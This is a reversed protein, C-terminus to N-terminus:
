SAMRAPLFSWYQRIMLDIKELLMNNEEAVIQTQSKNGIRACTRATEVRAADLSLSAESRAAAGDGHECDGYRLVDAKRWGCRRASTIKGPLTLM